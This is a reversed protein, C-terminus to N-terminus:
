HSQGTKALAWKPTVLCVTGHTLTEVDIGVRALAGGDEIQSIVAQLVTAIDDPHARSASMSIASMESLEDSFEVQVLRSRGRCGLVLPLYGADHSDNLWDRIEPEGLDFVLSALYGECSGFVIGFTSRPLTVVASTTPLGGLLVTADIFASQVQLAPAEIFVQEAGSRGVRVSQLIAPHMHVQTGHTTTISLKM